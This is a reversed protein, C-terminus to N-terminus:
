HYNFLPGETGCYFVRPANMEVLPLWNDKPFKKQCRRQSSFIIYETDGTPVDSLQPRLPFFSFHKQSLGRCSIKYGPRLNATPSSVCFSCFVGSKQQLAEPQFSAGTLSSGGGGASATAGTVPCTM